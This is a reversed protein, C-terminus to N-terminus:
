MLDPGLVAHTRVEEAYYWNLSPIGHFFIIRPEGERKVEELGSEKRLVKDVVAQVPFLELQLASDTSFAELPMGLQRSSVVVRGKEDLLFSEVVGM